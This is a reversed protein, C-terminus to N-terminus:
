SSRREQVGAARPGTSRQRGLGAAAAQLAQVTASVVPSRDSATVVVPARQQRRPDDVVLTSVGAPVAPATIQPIVTVGLGAAVLGLRAAWDRVAHAIRPPTSLTPWPGFQPGGEGTAGVIWDEDEIDDVTVRGRQAWPHKDHVALMLGGELELPDVRLRELPHEDEDAVAVVAVQIRGARLRRLQAPSSGEILRVAIAPHEGRLRVLARPVLHMMATPFAGIVLRGELRDELGALELEAAAIRDLVAKAHRLLVVGAATPRVGRAQREFLSTGVARELTRIQRSIASQNYGLADGAATFSGRVAVEQAIRLGAISPEM